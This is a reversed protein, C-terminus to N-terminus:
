IRGRRLIRRVESDVFVDVSKHLGLSKLFCKLEDLFELVM